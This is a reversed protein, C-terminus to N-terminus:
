MSCIASSQKFHVAVLKDAFWHQNWKLTRVPCFHCTFCMYIIPLTARIKVCFLCRNWIELRVQASMTLCQLSNKFALSCGSTSTCLFIPSSLKLLCRYGFSALPPLCLQVLVAVPRLHRDVGLSVVFDLGLERAHPSEDYWGTYSGTLNSWM